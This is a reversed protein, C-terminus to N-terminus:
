SAKEEKKVLKERERRQEETFEVKDGREACLSPTRTIHSSNHFNVFDLGSATRGRKFFQYIKQGPTNSKGTKMQGNIKKLSLNIEEMSFDHIDKTTVHKVCYVYIILILNLTRDIKYNQIHDVELNDTTVKGELKCWECEYNARKLVYSRVDSWAKSNYFRKREKYENYDIM